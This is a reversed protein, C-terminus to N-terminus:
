RRRCNKISCNRINAAYTSGDKACGVPCIGRLAGRKAAAEDTALLLPLGAVLIAVTLAKLM